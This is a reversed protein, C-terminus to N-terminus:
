RTAAIDAGLEADPASVTVRGSSTQVITYHTNYGTLCDTIEKPGPAKPDVPFAAIYTPVLASCINALGPGNGIVQEIGSPIGPPLTGSNKISYQGVANLIAVVDSGRKTNNAKSFQQQPNIAVISIALLVTLIGIVLMLEILTFGKSM